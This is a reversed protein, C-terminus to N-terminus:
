NPVLEVEGQESLYTLTIELLNMASFVQMYLLTATLPEGSETSIIAAVSENNLLFQCFEVHRKQPG